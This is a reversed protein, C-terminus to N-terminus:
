KLKSMAEPVEVELVNYKGTTLDKVIKYLYDDMNVIDLLIGKKGCLYIHLVNKKFINKVLLVDYLSFRSVGKIFSIVVVQDGNVKVVPSYYSLKILTWIGFSLWFLIAVELMLDIGYICGIGIATIFLDFLVLEGKGPMTIFKDQKNSVQYTNKLTFYIITFTYNLFLVILVIVLSIIKNDM